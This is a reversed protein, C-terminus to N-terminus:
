ASGMTLRSSPSSLAQGSANGTEGIGSQMEISLGDDSPTFDVHPPEDFGENRMLRAETDLFASRGHDSQLSHRHGGLLAVCHRLPKPLPDSGSDGAETQRRLASNNTARIFTSFVNQYSGQNHFFAHLGVVSCILACLIAIGYPVLLDSRSYAYTAPWTTVNM